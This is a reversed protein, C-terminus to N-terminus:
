HCLCKKVIIMIIFVTTFKGEEKPFATKKSEGRPSATVLYSHSILPLMCRVYPTYM